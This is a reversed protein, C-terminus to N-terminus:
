GQKRPRSNESRSVCTLPCERSRTHAPSSSCRSNLTHFGALTIFQFKYGFSALKQQFAAIEDPTLHKEWNFSPSCNYALAKGPFASHIGEAFRRAEDLDPTPTECWVLDAYPAYAQGRAIAAEM